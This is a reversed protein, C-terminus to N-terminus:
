GLVCDVKMGGTRSEAMMMDDVMEDFSTAAAQRNTNRTLTAEEVGMLLLPTMSDATSAGPLWRGRM